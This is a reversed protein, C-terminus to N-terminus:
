SKLRVGKTNVDNAKLPRIPLQRNIADLMISRIYGSVTHGNKKCYEQLLDHTMKDMHISTYIKKDM